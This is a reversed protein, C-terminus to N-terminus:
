EIGRRKREEEIIDRFKGAGEYINLNINREVLKGRMKLILELVKNRASWDPVDIFDMTKEDADKQSVASIVKTADLGEKITKAL